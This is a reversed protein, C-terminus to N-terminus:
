NPGRCRSVTGDARTESDLALPTIIKVLSVLFGGECMLLVIVAIDGFAMRGCRLWSFGVMGGGINILRAFVFEGPAPLDLRARASVKSNGSTQQAPRRWM